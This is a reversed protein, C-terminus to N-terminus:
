DFAAALIISEAIKAMSTRTRMSQTRLLEFARKGSINKKEMIIDKAREIIKREELEREVVEKLVRLEINKLVIAAQSAVTTLMQIDENSFAYPKSTYCNIVGTVEGNISMPV